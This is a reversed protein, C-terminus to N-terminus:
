ESRIRANGCSFFDRSAKRGTLPHISTMKMIHRPILRFNMGPM